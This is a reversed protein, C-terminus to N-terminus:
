GASDLHMTAPQASISNMKHCLDLALRPAHIGALVAQHRAGGFLAWKLGSSLPCQVVISFFSLLNWEYLEIVHSM